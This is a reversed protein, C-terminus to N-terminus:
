YEYSVLQGNRFVGSFGDYEVHDWTGGIDARHVQRNPNPWFALLKNLPMGIIDDGHAIRDLDFYAQCAALQKRELKPYESLQAHIVRQCRLSKGYHVAALAAANASVALAIAVALITRKM